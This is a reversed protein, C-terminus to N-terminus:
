KRCIHCANLVLFKSGLPYLFTALNNLLPILERAARQKLSQYKMHKKKMLNVYHVHLQMFPLMNKKYLFNSILQMMKHVGKWEKLLFNYYPCKVMFWDFSELPIRYLMWYNNIKKIAQIKLVKITHVCSYVM